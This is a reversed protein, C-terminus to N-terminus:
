KNSRDNFSGEATAILEVKGLSDLCVQRSDELVKRAEKDATQQNVKRLYNMLEIRYGRSSTSMAIYCSLRFDELRELRQLAFDARRARTSLLQNIAAGAL